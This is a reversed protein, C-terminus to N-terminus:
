LLQLRKRMLKHYDRGLAYRSIYGLEPNNLTHEANKSGSPYYNMRVSIVSLTGAVLEDPLYRMSGHKHMFHMDGHYGQEIWDLFRAQYLNLNTDTVGLKQFGLDLSWSKIKQLLDETINSTTNKLAM